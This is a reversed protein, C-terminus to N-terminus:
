EDARGGANAVILFNANSYKFFSLWYALKYWRDDYNTWYIKEVNFGFRGLLYALTQPTFMCTHDERIKPEGYLFIRLVYKFWYPNPTTILFHGDKKLHKKVSLLLNGANDLHEIIEGAVIVDFKRHLNFNEANACYVEYGDKKLKEVEGKEIDIGVCSQAYKHIFGHLWEDGKLNKAEHYNHDICGIDLVDKGEVYKKIIELRNGRLTEMKEAM